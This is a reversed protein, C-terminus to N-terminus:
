ASEEDCCRCWGEPGHQCQPTIPDGMSSLPRAPLDDAWAIPDAALAEAARVLYQWDPNTTIGWVIATMAARDHSTIQRM